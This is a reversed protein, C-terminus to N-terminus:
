LINDMVIGVKFTRILVQGNNKLSIKSFTAFKSSAWIMRIEVIEAKNNHCAESNFTKKKNVMLAALKNLKNHMSDVKSVIFYM